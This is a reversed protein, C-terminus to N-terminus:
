GLWQWFEDSLQSWDPRVRAKAEAISWGEDLLHHFAEYADLEDDTLSVTREDLRKV